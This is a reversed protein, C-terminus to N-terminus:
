KRQGLFKRMEGMDARCTWILFFCAIQTRNWLEDPVRSLKPRRPPFIFAMQWDLWRGGGGLASPEM